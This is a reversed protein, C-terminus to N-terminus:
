GYDFGADFTQELISPPIVSGLCLKGIVAIGDLYRHIREFITLQVGCIDLSQESGFM